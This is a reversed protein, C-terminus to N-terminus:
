KRERGERRESGREVGGRGGDKRGGGRREEGASNPRRPSAGASLFFSVQEAVTAQCGNFGHGSIHAINPM